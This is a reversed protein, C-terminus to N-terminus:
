ISSGFSSYYVPIIFVNFDMSNEWLIWVLIWIDNM